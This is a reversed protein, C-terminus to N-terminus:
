PCTVEERWRPCHRRIGHSVETRAEAVIEAIMRMDEAQEAPTETMAIIQETFCHGPDEARTPLGSGWWTIHRTM